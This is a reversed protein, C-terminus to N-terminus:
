RDVWGASVEQPIVSIDYFAGVTAATYVAFQSCISLLKIARYMDM